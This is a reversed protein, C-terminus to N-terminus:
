DEFTIRVDDDNGSLVIYDNGVEKLDYLKLNLPEM